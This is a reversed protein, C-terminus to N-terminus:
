WLLNLGDVAAITISPLNSQAFRGFLFYKEYADILREVFMLHWVKVNNKLVLTRETKQKKLSTNM